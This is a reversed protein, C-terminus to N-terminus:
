RRIHYKNATYTHKNESTKSSRPFVHENRSRDGAPFVGDRLLTKWYDLFSNSKQKSCITKGSSDVFIATQDTREVLIACVGQGKPFYGFLHFNRFVNFSIPPPPRRLLENAVPHVRSKGAIKLEGGVDWMLLLLQIIVVFILAIIENLNIAFVTLVNDIFRYFTLPEEVFADWHGLSSNRYNWLRPRDNGVNFRQQLLTVFLNKIGIFM